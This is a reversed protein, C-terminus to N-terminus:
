EDTTAGQHSTTSRLAYYAIGVHVLVVSTLAGAAFGWAFSELTGHLQFLLISAISQVLLGTILMASLTKQLGITVYFINTGLLAICTGSLLTIRAAPVGALYDPLIWVTVPEMLFWGAIGIPILVAVVPLASKLTTRALAQSDRTHGFEEGLAPILVRSVAFQFVRMISLVTIALLYHGLDRDDMFIAILTRDLGFSLLLLFRSFLIPIGEKVLTRATGPDWVPAKYARAQVLCILSPILTVGLTRITLGPTHWFALPLLIWWLAAEILFIRNIYRLKYEATFVTGTYNVFLTLGALLGACLLKWALEPNSLGHLFFVWAAAGLLLCTGVSLIGIWTTIGWIREIEAHKEEARRIPVLREASNFVGATLWYAYMPFIGIWAVFGVAEPGAIRAALLSAGLRLILGIGRSGLLSFMSRALHRIPAEEGSPNNM